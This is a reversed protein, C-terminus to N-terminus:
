PYIQKFEEKDNANFYQTCGGSTQKPPRPNKVSWTDLVAAAVSRLVVTDKQLEYHHEIRRSTAGTNEDQQLDNIGLCDPKVVNNIEAYYDGQSIPPIKWQGVVFSKDLTADNIPFPVNFDIGKLHDGIRDHDYNHKAYFDYAVRQPGSTPKLFPQNIVNLLAAAWTNHLITAYEYLDQDYNREFDLAKAALLGVDLRTQNMFLYDKKDWHESIERLMMKSNFMPPYDRYKTLNENFTLAEDVLENFKRDDMATEKYDKYAKFLKLAM